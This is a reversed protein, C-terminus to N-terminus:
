TRYDRSRGPFIFVFRHHRTRLPGHRNGHFYFSVEYAPSQLADISRLASDFLSRVSYQTDLSIMPYDVLDVPAIIGPKDLAHGIPFVAVLRDKIFPISELQPHPHEILGIGLDAAEDSVLTAIQQAGSERLRISIGPFQEGFRAIAVPVIESCLSPLAAITVIGISESTLKTGAIATDIDNLAREIIPVINQGLSTLKVFRTNRDLLRVGLTEELQHMQVTLAPQSLHLDKAAHTFSGMRAIAVLSRLQRLNISMIM